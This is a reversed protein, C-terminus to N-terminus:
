DTQISSHMLRGLMDAWLDRELLSRNPLKIKIKFIDNLWKPRISCISILGFRGHLPTHRHMGYWLM